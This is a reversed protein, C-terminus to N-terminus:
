QSPDRLQCDGGSGPECLELTSTLWYKRGRQEREGVRQRAQQAAGSANLRPPGVGAPPPEARVRPQQKYFADCSGRLVGDIPDDKPGANSGASQCVQAFAIREDDTLARAAQARTMGGGVLRAYRSEVARLCGAAADSKECRSQAKVLADGLLPGYTIARQLAQQSVPNEIRTLATEYRPAAEAPVVGWGRPGIAGPPLLPRSEVKGRDALPLAQAQAEALAGEVRKKLKAREAEQAQPDGGQAALRACVLEMRPEAKRAAENACTAATVGKEKIFLDMCSRYLAEDKMLDAEPTTKCREALARDTKAALEKYAKCAAKCASRDFSFGWAVFRCQNDGPGVLDSVKKRAAAHDAGPFKQELEAHRDLMWQADPNLMKDCDPEEYAFAPAALLLTLTLLTAPRIM